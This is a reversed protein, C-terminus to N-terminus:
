VMMLSIDASYTETLDGDLNLDAKVDDTYPYGKEEAYQEYESILFRFTATYTGEKLTLQDSGFIEQAETQYIVTGDEDTITMEIVGIGTTMSYSMNYVKEQEVTFTHVIPESDDNISIGSQIFNISQSFVSTLLITIGTIMMVAGIGLSIFLPKLFSKKPVAAGTDEIPADQKTLLRTAFFILLPAVAGIILYVAVSAGSSLTQAVADSQM